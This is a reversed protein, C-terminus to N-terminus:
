TPTIKMFIIVSYGPYKNKIEMCLEDNGTKDHCLRGRVSGGVGPSLGSKWREAKDGLTGM